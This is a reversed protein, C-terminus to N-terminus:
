EVVRWGLGRVTRIASAGLKRRLGHVLVAVANRQVEDGWGYIRHELQDRSLVAGPRELLAHMLTFERATLTERKGDDQVVERTALDLRLGGAGLLSQAVGGRRRIVARMRAVLEQFDFPKSLYDDAGVDLGAIRDNPTLRASVVIM